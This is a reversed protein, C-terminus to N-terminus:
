RRRAHNSLATAGITCTRSRWRQTPSAMPRPWRSIGKAMPVDPPVFRGQAYIVGLNFAAGANGADAAVRLWKLADDSNKEVGDGTLCMNSLLFAADGEGLQAAERLWKAAEPKDLRLVNGTFYNLGLLLMARRSGKGAAEILLAEGRKADIPHDKPELNQLAERVLPEIPQPAVDALAPAVLVFMVLLLLTALTFRLNGRM